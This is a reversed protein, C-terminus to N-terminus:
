IGVLVSDPWYCIVMLLPIGCFSDVVRVGKFDGKTVALVYGRSVM